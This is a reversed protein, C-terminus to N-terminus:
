NTEPHRVQNPNYQFLWYLFGKQQELSQVYDILQWREEDTLDDFAPMPTGNLASTFLRDIDQERKGNRFHPSTLDGPRIPVDWDDVLQDAQPGDGRGEDGHCDVCDQDVYLRRGAEISTYDSAFPRSDPIEIVNEPLPLSYPDEFYPCFAEVYKTVATIDSESLVNNWRPMETGPVGERITREIDEDLPLIGAVTTRFKYVGRRFNRPAPDFGAAAPGLGDGRIGHCSACARSYITRGRESDDSQSHAAM